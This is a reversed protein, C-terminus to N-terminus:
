PSGAQTRASSQVRARVEAQFVRQRRAERPTCLYAAYSALYPLETMPLDRIWQMAYQFGEVLCLAVQVAFLTQYDEVSRVRASAVVLLSFIADAVSLPYSRM